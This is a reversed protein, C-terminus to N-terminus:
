QCECGESEKNGCCKEEPLDLSFNDNKYDITAGGIRQLVLGSACVAIGTEEERSFCIGDEPEKTAFELCYCGDSGIIVHLYAKEMNEANAIARLATAAELTLTLIPNKNPSEILETNIDDLIEEIVEESFGHIQCGEELSEIAGVSCSTCHMGYEILINEAPPFLAVIEGISMDRTIRIDGIRNAPNNNSDPM